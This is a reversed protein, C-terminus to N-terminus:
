RHVFLKIWSMTKKTKKKFFWINESKEGYYFHIYIICFDAPYTVHLCIKLLKQKILQESFKVINNHFM